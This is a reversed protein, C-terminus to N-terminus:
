VKIGLRKATDVFASDNGSGGGADLQQFKPQPPTYEGGEPM